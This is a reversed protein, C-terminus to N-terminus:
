TLPGENSIPPIEIAFETGVGMQSHCYLKGKHKEVVISYAVSLGLGTGKGVPKTSFFPDFIRHQVEEKIGMGNDAIYIGVMRAPTVQTRIKIQPNTFDKQQEMRDEVADIANSLINMFVQNLQSAYCEVKPLEGYEVIAEIDPLHPPTKLRHQLIMLTSDIGLCIDVPKKHAEDLRAFNRLSQVISGIREAGVQMSGAIKPLDERVYELESDELQQEIEAGPQPFKEQYLSIIDLMINAYENIHDINGYIFNVSNNIEHAVGAVLQGLSSMKETQVMQTQTLQLQRLTEELRRNKEQLERTRAAVKHEMDQYLLANELSVAAQAALLSVVECRDSTFVGPSQSNELYVIGILQGRNIAPVCLLSQPQHQQVYDSRAIIKEELANPLVIIERKAIAYNIIAMPVDNESLLIRPFVVERHPAVLAQVAVLWNQEERLLLMAKTAGTNEMLVEILNGLLKDMVIEGSIARSAKMIAGLDLQTADSAITHSVLTRKRDIRISERM